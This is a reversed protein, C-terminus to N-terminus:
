DEAGADRDDDAELRDNSRRRHRRRELEMEGLRREHDGDTTKLEGIEVAHKLFGQDVREIFRELKNGVDKVTADLTKAAQRQAGFYLIMHVAAIMITASLLWNAIRTALVYEPSPPGGAAQVASQLFAPVTSVAVAVLLVKSQLAARIM